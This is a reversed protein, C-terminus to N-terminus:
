ARTSCIERGQRQLATRARRGLGQHFDDRGVGALLVAIVAVIALAVAITASCSGAAPGARHPPPPHRTPGAPSRSTTMGAGRETRCRSPRRNPRWGSRGRVPGGRPLRRLRHRGARVRPIRENLLIAGLLVAVVPDATLNGPFSAALAGAAFRWRRSPWARRGWCAAAVVLPVLGEARGFAAIGHEEWTAAAADVLVAVVGFLAGSVTGYVAAKM